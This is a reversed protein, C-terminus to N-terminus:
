VPSPDPHPDKGTSDGQMLTGADGRARAVPSPGPTLTKERRIGRCLHEQIEGRGHLPLPAAPCSGPLDAVSLVPLMPLLDTLCPTSTIWATAPSRHSSRVSAIQLPRPHAAPTSPRATGGTRYQACSRNCTAPLTERRLRTLVPQGAAAAAAGVGYWAAPP